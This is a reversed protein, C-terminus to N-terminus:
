EPAEIEVPVDIATIIENMVQEPSKRLTAEMSLVLRHEFVPVILDKADDPTIYSRGKLLARAQCARIWGLVARTSIGVEIDSNERTARAIHLCYDVVTDATEIEKVSKKLESISEISLKSKLLDIPEKTRYSLLIDKEEEFSPYSMELKFLFRDLQAEPLPFTGHNNELPNQTAIVFFPNPLKITEGDVTAQQEGMAELLSSQTKPTARNIEDALLINTVVPGTRLEFQQKQPNFFQIGTVDSPLVDPTFQVRSFQGNMVKAFSNALKTKGSGPVSELLVHGDSLLAIFLKEIVDEKGIVVKSIEDMADQVQKIHENM